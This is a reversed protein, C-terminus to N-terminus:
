FHKKVESLPEDRHVHGCEPRRRTKETFLADRAIELEGLDFLYHSPAVVSRSTMEFPDRVFRPGKKGLWERTKLHRCPPEGVEQVVKAWFRRELYDDLSDVITVAPPPQELWVNHKKRLWGRREPVQQTKPLVGEVVAEVEQAIQGISHHAQHVVVSERLEELALLDVHAQHGLEAEECEAGVSERREELAREMIPEVLGGYFLLVGLIKLWIYPAYLLVAGILASTLALIDNRKM